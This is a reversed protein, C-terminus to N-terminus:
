VSLGFSSEARADSPSLSEDSRSPLEDLTAMLTRTSGHRVVTLEAGSGPKLGRWTTASSMATLWTHWGDEDIEAIYVLCLVTGRISWYLGTISEARM